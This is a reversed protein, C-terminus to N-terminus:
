IQYAKSARVSTLQSFVRNTLNAQGSRYGLLATFFTAFGSALLLMLILKSKISM